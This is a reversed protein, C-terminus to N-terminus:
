ELRDSRLTVFSREDEEGTLTVLLNCGRGEAGPSIVIVGLLGAESVVLAQQVANYSHDLRVLVLQLVPQGSLRKLLGFVAVSRKEVVRPVSNEDVIKLADRANQYHHFEIDREPELMRGLIKGIFAQDDVLLVTIGSNVSSLDTKDPYAGDSNMIVENKMMTFIGHLINPGPNAWIM